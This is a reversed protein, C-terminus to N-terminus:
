FNFQPKVQLSGSPNEKDDLLLLTPPPESNVGPVGSRGLVETGLARPGVSYFSSVHDRSLHGSEFVSEIFPCRLEPVFIDGKHNSFSGSLYSELSSQAFPTDTFRRGRSVVVGRGTFLDRGPNRVM